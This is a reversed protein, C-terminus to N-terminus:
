IVCNRSAQQARKIYQLLSPWIGFYPDGCIQIFSV